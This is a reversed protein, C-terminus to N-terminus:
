ERIDEYRARAFYEGEITPRLSFTPRSDEDDSEEENAEDFDTQQRMSASCDVCFMLVEDPEKLKRIAAGGCADFVGTGESEYTKMIPASLQEIVATDVTETGSLPRFVLSSRGPEGYAQEGLYVAVHANRDFTLCHSISSTLQSPKHVALQHRGCLEALFNLENLESDDIM